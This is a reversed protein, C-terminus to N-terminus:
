RASRSPPRSASRTRPPPRPARFARSILGPKRPACVASVRSPHSAWASQRARAWPSSDIGNGEGQDVAVLGPARREPARPRMRPGRSGRGARPISPNPLVVSSVDTRVWPSSSPMSTSVGGALRWSRSKPNPTTSCSKSPDSARASPPAPPRSLPECSLGQREELRGRTGDEGLRGELHQVADVAQARARPARAAAAPPPHRRDHRRPSGESEAGGRRGARPAGTASTSVAPDSGAWAWGSTASSARWGAVLRAVSPASSASPVARRTRSAQSGPAGSLAHRAMWRTRRSDAGSRRAPPRARRARRSQRASRPRRAHAPARSRRPSPPRVHSRLRDRAAPM